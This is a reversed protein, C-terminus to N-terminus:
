QPSLFWDTAPNTPEPFPQSSPSVAGSDIKRLANMAELRVQVRAMRPSNFVRPFNTLERLSPIASQADAGFMGLAHAASLQAWEDSDGLAHVLAPVCLKPEARIEGLAWLANARVKADSNTAGRLLVSIAPKSAPGIWALADEIAARSNASLDEDYTRVLAPVAGRAMEGLAIFARSAAVNREAATTFHFRILRQKQALSLLHLKLKSDKERIMHLLVPICNTGIHRVAKDAENWERSNRGPSSSPAYTRLWLTLAKGRYVPVRPAQRILFWVSVALLIILSAAITWLWWPKSLRDTRSLRGNGHEDSM